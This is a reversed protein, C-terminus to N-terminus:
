QVQLPRIAPGSGSLNRSSGHLQLHFDILYINRVAALRLSADAQKRQGSSVKINTLLKQKSFYIKRM